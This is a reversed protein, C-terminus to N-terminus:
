LPTTTSGPSAISVPGLQAVDYTTQKKKPPPNSTKGSPSLFDLLSKKFNWSRLFDNLIM